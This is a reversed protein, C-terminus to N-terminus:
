QRRGKTSLDHQARRTARKLAGYINIGAVVFRQREESLKLFNPDPTSGEESNGESGRQNTEDLWHEWNLRTVVDRVGADQFGFDCVSHAAENRIQKIYTLQRYLESSIIGYAYATKIMGGFSALPGYSGSLSEIFGKACSTNLRVRATHLERLQDELV